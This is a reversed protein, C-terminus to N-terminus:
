GLHTNSNARSNFGCKDGVDVFPNTDAVANQSQLAATNQKATGM